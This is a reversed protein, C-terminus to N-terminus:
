YKYTGDSNKTVLEKVNFFMSAALEDNITDYDYLELSIKGNMVPM